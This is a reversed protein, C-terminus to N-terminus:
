GARQILHVNAEGHDHDPEAHVHEGHLWTVEIVKAQEHGLEGCAQCVLARM